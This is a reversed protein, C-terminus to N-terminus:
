KILLFPYVTLLDALATKINPYKDLLIKRMQLLLHYLSIREDEVSPIFVPDKNTSNSKIKVYMVIGEKTIIHDAFSLQIIEIPRLLCFFAILSITKRLVFQFFEYTEDEPEVPCTTIYYKLLLSADWM